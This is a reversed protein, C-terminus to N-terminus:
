GKRDTEAPSSPPAAPENGRQNQALGALARRVTDASPCRGRCLSLIALLNARRSGPAAPSSSADAERLLQVIKGAIERGTRAASSGFLDAGMRRFEKDRRELRRRRLASPSFHRRAIQGLEGIPSSLVLELARNRDDDPGARALIPEDLGAVDM